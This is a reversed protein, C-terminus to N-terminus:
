TVRFLTAMKCTSEANVEKDKKSRKKMRESNETGCGIQDIDQLKKKKRTEQLLQRKSKLRGTPRGKVQVAKPPLIKSTNTREDDYELNLTDLTKPTESLYDDHSSYYSSGNSEFSSSSLSFISEDLHPLYSLLHLSIHSEGSARWWVVMARRQM